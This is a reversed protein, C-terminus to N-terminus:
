FKMKNVVLNVMSDGILNRLSFGSSKAHGGGGNLKAIESLDVDSNKKCRLSISEASVLVVIDIDLMPDNYIADAVQSTYKNAGGIFGVRYRKDGIEKTVICSKIQKKKDQIMEEMRKRELNLVYIEEKSFKIDPTRLFRDIFLNQGLLMHLLSLDESEPEHRIWRDNDDILHAFKNYKKYKPFTVKMTKLFDYFMLTGCRNNEKEIECWIFQDLDLATKHHDLLYIEPTNSNNIKDAMKVSISTDAIILKRNQDFVLKDVLSDSADHNPNTFFLNEKKGGAALFLTAVGSGDMCGKHSVLTFEELNM